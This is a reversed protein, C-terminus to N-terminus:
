DLERLGVEYDCAVNITSHKYNGMNYNTDVVLIPDLYKAIPKELMFVMAAHSSNEANVWGSIMDFAGDEDIMGTQVKYMM